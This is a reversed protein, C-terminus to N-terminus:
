NSGPEFGLIRIEPGSVCTCARGQPYQCGADHLTVIQHVGPAFTHRHAAVFARVAELPKGGNRTLEAVILGPPQRHRRRNRNHASM